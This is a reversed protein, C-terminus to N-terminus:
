NISKACIQWVENLTEQIKEPWLVYCAQGNIAANSEDIGANVILTSNKITLM